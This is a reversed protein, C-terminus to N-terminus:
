TGNSTPSRCIIIGKAKRARPTKGYESTPDQKEGASRALVYVAVDSYEKASDILGATEYDAYKFEKISYSMDMTFINEVRSDDEQEAQWSYLDPNVTLGAEELGEKLTATKYSASGVTSSGGSGLVSNVSYYGFLNVRSNKALPLTNDENRLLVAGEEMTRISVDRTNAVAKEWTFDEDLASNGTESFSSWWMTIFSNATVSLSTITIFLALLVAMIAIGIIGIKKSTQKM